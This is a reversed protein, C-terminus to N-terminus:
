RDVGTKLARCFAEVDDEYFDAQGKDDMSITQGWMWQMFAKWNSEGIRRIVEKKTM